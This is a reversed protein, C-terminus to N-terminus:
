ESKLNKLINELQDIDTLAKRGQSAYHEIQAQQQKSPVLTGDIIDNNIATIITRLNIM